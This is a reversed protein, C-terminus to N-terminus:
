EVGQAILITKAAPGAPFDLFARAGEPNVPEAALAAVCATCNRIAVSDAQLVADKLADTSSIDPVPATEFALRVADGTQRQPPRLIQSRSRWGSM